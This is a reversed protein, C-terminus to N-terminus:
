VDLLGGDSSRYVVEDLSYKEGSPAASGVDKFPVFKANFLHSNELPATPFPAAYFYLPRACCPLLDPDQLLRRLYPVPLCSM